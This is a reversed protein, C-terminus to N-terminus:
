CGNYFASRDPMITNCLIASGLSAGGLDAGEMHASNLDCKVCDGTNELKQFDERDLALAISAFITAVIALITLRHKNISTAVSRM